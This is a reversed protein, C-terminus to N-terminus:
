KLFSVQDNINASTIFNGLAYSLSYGTYIGFNYVGMATARLGESFYDAILSVAFPTCGAERSFLM